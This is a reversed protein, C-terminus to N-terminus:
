CRQPFIPTCVRQSFSNHAPCAEISSKLHDPGPGDWSVKVAVKFYNAWRDAGEHNLVIDECGQKFESTFSCKEFRETTNALHFTVPHQASEESSSSAPTVKVAMLIDMEIAAPLVSFGQHDM